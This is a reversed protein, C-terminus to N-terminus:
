AARDMFAIMNKDHEEEDKGYITIDDHITIVGQLGELIKDMKMQFADQSCRAGMPM